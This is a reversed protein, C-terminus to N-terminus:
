SEEIASKYHSSASRVWEAMSSRADQPEGPWAAAAWRATLELRTADMEASLLHHMEQHPPAIARTVASRQPVVEHLFCTALTLQGEPTSFITYQMEGVEQVPTGPVHGCVVDRDGPPSPASVAEWVVALPAAILVSASVSETAELVPRAACAQRVEAPMGAPWQQEGELVDRARALWVGLMRDWSPKLYHAEGSDTGTKMAIAIVSGRRHPRASFTVEQDAAVAWTAAVGSQEACLKLVGQGAGTPTAQLLCRIPASDPAVADFAFLGRRLSWVAASSLLSWAREPGTSVECSKEIFTTKTM